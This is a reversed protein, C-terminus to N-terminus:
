NKKSFPFGTLIKNGLTLFSSGFSWAIYLLLLLNDEADRLEKTLALLTM